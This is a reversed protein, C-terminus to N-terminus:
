VRKPSSNLTSTTKPTANQKRRGLRSFVSPRSSPPRLFAYLGAALVLLSFAGVVLGWMWFSGGLAEAMHSVDSPMVGAGTRAEAMFLYDGRSFVSLALQTALFVLVLQSWSGQDYWAAFGLGAACMGVFVIGFANRVVLVDGVVLGVALVALFIRAGRPRRACVFGVAGALAPGVLGGAAVLARGGDSLSGSWKAVGSADAFMVFEHFRGGLAAATIGHGLEHVLTSLLILPYGILRGMPVVYLLLTVGVSVALAVRARRSALAAAEDRDHGQRKIEAYSRM